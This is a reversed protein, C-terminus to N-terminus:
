DEVCVCVCVCVYVCVYVCMCVCVCEGEKGPFERRTGLSGLALSSCARVEKLLVCPHSVIM